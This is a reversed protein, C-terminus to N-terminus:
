LVLSLSLQELLIYLISLVLSKSIAKNINTNSRSIINQVKM